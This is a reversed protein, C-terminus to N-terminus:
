LLSVRDQSPDKREEASERESLAPCPQAAIPRASAKDEPFIWLYFTEVVGSPETAM